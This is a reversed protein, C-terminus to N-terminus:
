GVFADMFASKVSGLSELGNCGPMNVDLLILDFVEGELALAEACSAAESIDPERALDGLMLRLGRRFLTHDDILLIRM